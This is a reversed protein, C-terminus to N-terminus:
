YPRTPESIHILSLAFITPNSTVGYVAGAEIRGALEGTAIMRASISDLWVAQGRKRYDVSRNM